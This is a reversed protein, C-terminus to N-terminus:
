NRLPIFISQLKLFEYFCSFVWFSNVGCIWYKQEFSVVVKLLPKEFIVDENENLNKLKKM